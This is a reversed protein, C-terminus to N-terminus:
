KGRMSEALSRYHEAETYYENALEDDGISYYYEGKKHFSFAKHYYRAPSKRFAYAMVALLAAVSFIVALATAIHRLVMEILLM